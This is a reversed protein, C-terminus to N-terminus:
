LLHCRVMYNIGLLCTKMKSLMLKNVSLCSPMSSDDDIWWADGDISCESGTGTLLLM